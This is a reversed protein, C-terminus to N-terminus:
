SAHFACDYFSAPNALIATGLRYVGGSNRINKREDSYRLGGTLSLCSSLNYTAEGFLAWATAHVASFPRIQLGPGYQTIEIPGEDDDDFFFAGGVWALTPTRQALTLEQSVQRQLDPADTTAISLETADPDIFFHTNSKRYATLSTVTTTGNLRVAM